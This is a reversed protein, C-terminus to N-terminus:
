ESSPVLPLYIHPRGGTGTASAPAAGTGSPPASSRQRSTAAHTATLTGTATASRAHTSSAMATGTRGAMATGTRGAAATGTGAAAVTGTGNPDPTGTGSPATVTASASAVGTARATGTGTVTGTVTPSTTRTPTSYDTPTPASEDRYELIVGDEGVAFGHGAGMMQLANLKKGPDDEVRVTRWLRGDLYAVTSRRVYSDGVLWGSERSLLDIDRIPIPLPSDRQNRLPNAANKFWCQTGLDEDHCEGEYLNMRGRFGGDWGYLPDALDLAYLSDVGSHGLRPWGGVGADDEMYWSESGDEGVAWAEKRSLVRVDNLDKAINNAGTWLRWKGDVYRLIIAKINDFDADDGVAWGYWLGDDGRVMDLANLPAVRSNVRLENRELRRWGSGDYHLVVGCGLCSRDGEMVGVVWVDDPAIVFVDRLYYVGPSTKAPELTDVAEWQQGDFRALAGEDGVAWGIWGGDLQVVHLGNLEPAGVRWLPNKRPAHLAAWRGAPAMRTPTSSAQVPGEPGERVGGRPVGAAPTALVAAVGGALALVPLTWRRIIVLM